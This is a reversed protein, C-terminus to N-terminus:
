PSLTPKILENGSCLPSVLHPAYPLFRRRRVISFVTVKSSRKLCNKNQRSCAVFSFIPTRMMPQLQIPARCGEVAADLDGRGSFPRRSTKIPLRPRETLLPDNPATIGDGDGHRSSTSGLCPLQNLHRHQAMTTLSITMVQHILSHSSSYITATVIFVLLMSGSRMPLSGRRSLSTM